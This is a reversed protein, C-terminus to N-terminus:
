DWLTFFVSALERFAKNLATQIKKADKATANTTCDLQDRIALFQDAISNLKVQYAALMEDEPLKVEADFGLLSNDAPFGQTKDAFEKLMAPILDLLYDDMNWLDGVCYGKTARQKKMLQKGARKSLRYRSSVNLSHNKM